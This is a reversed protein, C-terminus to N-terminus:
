IVPIKTIRTRIRLRIPKTFAGEGKLFSQELESFIITKNVIIMIIAHNVM